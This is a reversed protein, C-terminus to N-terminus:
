AADAVAGSQEACGRCAGACHEAGPCRGAEVFVDAIAERCTGCKGGAGCSATVDAVDRAGNQVALRVVRDSVGRCLCLIM